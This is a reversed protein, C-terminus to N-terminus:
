QLDKKKSEFEDKDIEGKAYREKLIDLANKGNGSKTNNVTYKVLTVIGAIVLVWFLIMFIWGGFGSFGYGMMSNNNHSNIGSGFTDPNMMRSMMISGAGPYENMLEIMRETEDSSLEGSMMKIMLDGMEKHLENGLAQDEIQQMMMFGPEPSTATDGTHASIVVPFMVLIPLLAFLINKM